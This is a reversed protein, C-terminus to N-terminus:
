RQQKARDLRELYEIDDVDQGFAARARRGLGNGDIYVTECELEEPGAQRRREAIDHKEGHDNQGAEVEVGNLGATRLRDIFLGRM